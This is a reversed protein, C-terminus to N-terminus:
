SMLLTLFLKTLLFIFYNEKDKLVSGGLPPVRPLLDPEPTLLIDVVDDLDGIVLVLDELLSWPKALYSLKFELM